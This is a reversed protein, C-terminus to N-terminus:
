RFDSLLFLPAAPLFLGDAQLAVKVMLYKTSLKGLAQSESSM